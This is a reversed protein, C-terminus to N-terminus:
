ESHLIDNKGCKCRRFGCTNTEITHGLCAWKDPVAGGDGDRCYQDIRTVAAKMKLKFEKDKGVKRYEM